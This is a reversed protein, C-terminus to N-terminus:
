ELQLIGQADWPIDVQTAQLPLPATFEVYAILRSDADNTVHKYLLVGVYTRSADGGLGAFSVDNADFEARDNGDDKNVAEGTLAVRAYGTANCEDLTTLDAVFVKADNETDATTNSMLLACRIDDANLDIEAAASARKFENYVVSAM